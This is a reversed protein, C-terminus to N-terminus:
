LPFVTEERERVTDGSLYARLQIRAHLDIDMYRYISRICISCIRQIELVFEVPHTTGAM